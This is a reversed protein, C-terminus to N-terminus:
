GEGDLLREPTVLEPVRGDRIAATIEGIREAIPKVRGDGAILGGRPMELSAKTDALDHWCVSQVYPKAAAVALAAAAWDAQTRENWPRRWHGPHRKAMNDGGVLEPRESPVGIANISIPKGSVAAYRDLMASLAMLDRTSQGAMPQGMQIRLGIGDITVGPQNALTEAYLTPPLSRNNATHYEGWPQDIEVHVNATPHLKRVMRIADTTLVRMQEFGFRFNENTHVGTLVTWRGVTRRYRTVLTKVHELVYARLTDFDNEWIYLWDPVCAPRFDILPGAVVPLRATRVAWEIWQDTGKFAYRGEVPEMEVWRMPMSVFDFSKSALQKATETFSGPTIACGIWPRSPLVVGAMEGDVPAGPRSPVRGAEAAVKVAHEYTSGDLRGALSRRAHELSLREGADIALALARKALRDAHPSFGHESNAAATGAVGGGKSDPTSDPTSDPAGSAQRALAHTFARRAREFRDMAPHDAPLDTLQWDELKNFFLMIRHRALELSLLYAKPREPLLCTRLTLVGPYVRPDAESHDRAFAADEEEFCPGLSAADLPVQLALGVAERSPRNCTIVGDAVEIDGPVPVSEPGLLHAHRLAVSEGAGDTGGATSPTDFAQFRLM